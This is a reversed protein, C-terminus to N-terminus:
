SAVIERKFVCLKVKCLVNREIKHKRFSEKTGKLRSTDRFLCRSFSFIIEQFIYNIFFQEYKM